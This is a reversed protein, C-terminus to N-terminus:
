PKVPTGRVVILFDEAAASALCFVVLLDKNMRALDILYFKYMVRYEEQLSDDSFQVDRVSYADTTDESDEQFDCSLDESTRSKSRPLCSEVDVVNNERWIPFAEADESPYSTDHSSCSLYLKQLEPSEVTLGDDGKLLRAVHGISDNFPVDGIPVERPAYPEITDASGEQFDCNVGEGQLRFKEDEIIAHEKCIPLAEHNGGSLSLKQYGCREVTLGGDGRLPPAADDSSDKLSPASPVESLSVERRLHPETTNAHDEQFNCHVDKAKPRCSESEEFACEQCNSIAKTYDTPCSIDHSGGSLSLKQFGHSEVALGDDGKLPRADHDSSDFPDDSFPVEWHPHPETTDAFEEQFDCNVDKAQPRCSEGKLLTHKENISIEETDYTTAYSGGSLILKHFRPSEVALGGNVKFTPAPLESNGEKENDFVSTEFCSSTGESPLGTSKNSFNVYEIAQDRLRWNTCHMTVDLKTTVDPMLTETPNSILQSRTERVPVADQFTPMVTGTPNPEITVTDDELSHIRTINADPYRFSQPDITVTNDKPSRCISINAESDKYSQRYTPVANVESSRYRSINADSGSFSHPDVSVAKNEPSCCSSISADPYRYPQPDITVTEDEPSHIISINAYLDRCPQPDTTVTNYEPSPCRSINSDPDRCSQPDITFM